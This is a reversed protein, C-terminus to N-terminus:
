ASRLRRWALLGLGAGLLLATQPEPIPQLSMIGAELYSYPPPGNPDSILRVLSSGSGALGAFMGTGSTITYELEFGAGAAIPTGETYLTGSVGDAGQTLSFTGTGVNSVVNFSFNSLLTWTGAFGQFTYDTGNAQLPWNGGGDIPGQPTVTGSGVVVFTQAFASPLLFAALWVLKSIWRRM